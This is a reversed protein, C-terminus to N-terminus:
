YTKALVRVFVHAGCGWQRILLADFTDHNAFTTRRRGQDARQLGEGANVVNQRLKLASFLIIV